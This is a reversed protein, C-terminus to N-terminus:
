LAQFTWNESHFFMNVLHEIEAGVRDRGVVVSRRCRLQMEEATAWCSQNGMGTCRNEKIGECAGEVDKIKERARPKETVTDILRARRGQERQVNVRRVDTNGASVENGLRRASTEM